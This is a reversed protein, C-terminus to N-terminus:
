GSKKRAARPKAPPAHKVGAPRAEVAEHQALAHRKSEPILQAAYATGFDVLEARGLSHSVVNTVAEQSRGVLWAKKTQTYDIDERVIGTLPVDLSIYSLREERTESYFTSDTHDIEGGVDQKIRVKRCHFLGKAVRMTDAELTDTYWHTNTEHPRVRLSPGPRKSLVELPNGDNDVETINKRAYFQLHQMPLSDAYIAYSMLTAVAQPAGGDKPETMTEVWFCDEGWFREEGGVGVTLTYDQSHGLASHGTVHYRLWTGVKFRPGHTYDILGIGNLIQNDQAIAPAALVVFAAFALLPAFIARRM